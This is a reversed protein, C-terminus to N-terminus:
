RRHKASFASRLDVFPFFEAFVAAGFRPAVGPGVHRGPRGPGTVPEIFRNDDRGADRKDDDRAAGPNIEAGVQEPRRALL